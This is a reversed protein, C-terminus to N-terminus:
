SYGASFSLWNPLVSRRTQVSPERRGRVSGSVSPRRVRQEGRRPLVGGFGAERGAQPLVPVELAAPDDLPGVWEDALELCAGAGAGLGRLVRRM